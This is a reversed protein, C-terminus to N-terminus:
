VDSFFARALAFLSSTGLEIAYPQKAPKGEKPWELFFGAPILCRGKKYPERWAPAKTVTEAGANITSAGKIHKWIRTFPPVISM